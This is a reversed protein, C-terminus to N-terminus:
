WFFDLMFLVPGTLLLFAGAAVARRRPIRRLWRGFYPPVGRLRSRERVQYFPGVITYRSFSRRADGLEDVIWAFVDERSRWMIALGCVFALYGIMTLLGLGSGAGWYM